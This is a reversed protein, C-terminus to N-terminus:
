VARAVVAVNWSTEDAPKDLAPFASFSLMDLDACKLFFAFEQPFFFRCCHVETTEAVPLAGSWRQLHFRIEATHHLVDLTGSAHRILKGSSYEFTKTQDSPRIALVAPGYWIDCVFLGGRRLCRRVNQLTTMVHENKLQYGLGAFMILAADFTLGVDFTRMDGTAFKPALVKVGKLREAVKQRARALMATSMDIGTLQYGRCVLPISHNGTGCGVDLVTKISGDGYRSFLSEIVHCEGEYNKDGYILDYQEAYEDGFIPEKMLSGKTCCHVRM